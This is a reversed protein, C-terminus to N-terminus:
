HQSPSSQRSRKAHDHLLCSNHKFFNCDMLCSDKGFLTLPLHQCLQLVLSLFPLFSSRFHLSFTFLFMPPLIFPLTCRSQIFESRQKTLYCMKHGDRNRTTQFSDPFPAPPHLFHIVECYQRGWHKKCSRCLQFYSDHRSRVAKFHWPIPVQSHTTLSLLTNM